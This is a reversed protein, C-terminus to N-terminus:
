RVSTYCKQRTERIPTVGTRGMRLMLGSKGFLMSSRRDMSSPRASRDSDSPL